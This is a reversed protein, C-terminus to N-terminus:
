EASIPDLNEIDILGISGKIFPDLNQKLVPRLAVKSLLTTLLPALPAMVGGCKPPKIM